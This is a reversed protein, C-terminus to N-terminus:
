LFCWSGEESDLDYVQFELSSPNFGVGNIKIVDNM